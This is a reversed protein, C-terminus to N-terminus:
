KKAEFVPSVRPAAKTGPIKATGFSDKPQLASLREIVLRVVGAAPGAKPFVAVVLSLLGGVVLSIVGWNAVIFAVIASLTAM